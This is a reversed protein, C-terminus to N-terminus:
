LTILFLDSQNKAGSIIAPIPRIKNFDYIKFRFMFDFDFVHLTRQGPPRRNMKSPMLQM